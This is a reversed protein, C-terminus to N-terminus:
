CLISSNVMEKYNSMVTKYSNSRTKDLRERFFVWKNKDKDYGFEVITNDKIKRLKATSKIIQFVKETDKNDIILVVKRESLHKIKFDISLTHPPKYKLINSYYNGIPTLILGDLKGIKFKSFYQNVHFCLTGGKIKSFIKSVIIKSNINIIAKEFISKRFIFPYKRIDKNYYICDFTYYKNNYYETDLVITDSLEYNIKLPEKQMKTSITYCNNPSLVLFRREGDLKETLYYDKDSQLNKSTLTIPNNFSYHKEWFM